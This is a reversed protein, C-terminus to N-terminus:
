KGEKITRKMITLFSISPYIGLPILAVLEWGDRGHKNLIDTLAENDDASIRGTVYEFSARM